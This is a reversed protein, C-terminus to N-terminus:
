MAGTTHMTNRWLHMPYADTELHINIHCHSIHLEKVKRKKYGATKQKTRAWSKRTKSCCGTTKLIKRQPLAWSAFSMQASFYLSHVLFTQFHGHKTTNEFVTLECLSVEAAVCIPRHGRLLSLNISDVSALAVYGLKLKSPALEKIGLLNQFHNEEASLVRM